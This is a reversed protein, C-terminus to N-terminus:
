LQAPPGRAPGRQSVERSACVYCVRFSVTYQTGKAVGAGVLFSLLTKVSSPLLRILLLLKCLSTQFGCSSSYDRDCLPFQTTVAVPWIRLEVFVGESIWDRCNLAATWLTALESDVLSSSGVRSHHSLFGSGLRAALSGCPPLPVLALQRVKVHPLYM